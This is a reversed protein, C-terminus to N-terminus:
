LSGTYLICLFCSKRQTISGYTEGSSFSGNAVPTLVFKKNSVDFTATAFCSKKAISQNSVDVCHEIEITVPEPLVPMKIDYLASVLTYDGEPLVVPGSFITRVTISSSEVTTVPVQIKYGYEMNDLIAIGGGAISHEKINIDSCMGITYLYMCMYVFLHLELNFTEGKLMIEAQSILWQITKNSGTKGTKDQNAKHIEYSHFAILGFDIPVTVALSVGALVMGAIRGGARLALTSGEIAGEAAIGIGAGVHGADAAGMAEGATESTIRKQITEQHKKAVYNISLSLQQDLSIHEQAAKLWKNALVKSALFAGIGGASDLGGVVGGAVSLGISAGFTNPVLYLGVVALTGGLVISATSAAIRVIRENCVISMVEDKNRLIVDITGSRIPYWLSRLLSLQSGFLIFRNM